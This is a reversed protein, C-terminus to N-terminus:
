LELEMFYLGDRLCGKVEYYPEIKKFGMKKYLQHSEVMFTGTDLRMYKFGRRRAAELLEETLKAGIGKRRHKIPVFLRKMECYTDDLKKLGVGGVPENELLALIVCGGSANYVEDLHQMEYAYAESDFYREVIEIDAAYRM